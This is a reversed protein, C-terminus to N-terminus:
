SRSDPCFQQSSCRFQFSESTLPSVEEPDVPVEEPGEVKVTEIGLQEAIDALRRGYAGNIAM